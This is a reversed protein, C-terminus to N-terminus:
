IWLPFGCGPSIPAYVTNDVPDILCLGVVRDDDEAALVSM